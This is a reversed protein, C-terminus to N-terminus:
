HSEHNVVNADHAALQHLYIHIVSSSRVYVLYRGRVGGANYWTRVTDGQVLRKSDSSDQGRSTTVRTLAARPTDCLPLAGEGRGKHKGRERGRHKMHATARHILRKIDSSEQRRSSTVRTLEVLPM